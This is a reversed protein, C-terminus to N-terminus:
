QSTSLRQFRRPRRPSLDNQLRITTDYTNITPSSLVWTMFCECRRATATAAVTEDGPFFIV